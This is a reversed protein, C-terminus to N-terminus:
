RGDGADVLSDAPAAGARRNLFQPSTVICDVLTQFRYGNAALKSRMDDITADDPLILSRNLAYALLKRCLNDVFDNERHGRIYDRLGALGEGSAVDHPFTAHADVPRGALDVQRREGVPGYGEFVLGLSDFRAHCAACSKESRHRALMDRLPLETKAEDRPLEPVAAPPPPIFEGLVRKVVWYGRKVPSTRLGPANKTLFAAMPLLGGRDYRDADTVHVWADGAPEPMGYHRALPANVFTDHGYILDLVSRNQSFVDSLLRVPEEFMAERLANTFTPFRERDVTNLEELRRFDLWNGGFELALARSRPDALMRRAQAMLVAPQHLEGRRACAALEADPVSSWLFFSLRSALAEDSLPQVPIGGAGMTVAGAGTSLDLRYCFDPSMLIAVILDRM